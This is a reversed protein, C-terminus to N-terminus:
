VQSLFYNINSLLKASVNRLMVRPIKIIINTICIMCIHLHKEVFYKLQKEELEFSLRGKRVLLREEFIKNVKSYRDLNVKYCCRLIVNCQSLNWWLLCISM